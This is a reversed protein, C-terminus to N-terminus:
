CGAPLKFCYFNEYDTPFKKETGTASPQIENFLLPNLLELNPNSDKKRIAVVRQKIISPNGQPIVMLQTQINIKRFGGRFIDGLFPIFVQPLVRNNLRSRFSVTM